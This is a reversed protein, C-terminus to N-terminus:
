LIMEKFIELRLLCATAYEGDKWLIEFANVSAYSLKIFESINKFLIVRIHKYFISPFFYNQVLSRIDKSSCTEDALKEIMNEVSLSEISKEKNLEESEDIVSNKTEQSTEIKKPKEHVLIQMQERKKKLIPEM